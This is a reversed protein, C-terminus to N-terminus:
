KEEDNVDYEFDFNQGFHVNLRFRHKHSGNPSFLTVESKVMQSIIFQCLFYFDAINAKKREENTSTGKYEFQEVLM